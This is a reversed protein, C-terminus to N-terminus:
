YYDNILCHKKDIFENRKIFEYSKRGNWSVYNEVTILVNNNYNKKLWEAYQCILDAQYSMMDYQMSTLIRRPDHIIINNSKKDHIYFMVYGSKQVLMVRWSWRFGNEKWLVENMYTKIDYNKLYLIFRAPFLIQFVLFLVVIFRIIQSTEKYKINNINSNIYIKNFILKRKLQLPWDPEFFITTFLIMVWPFVGIEFLIRTLVHFLIVLFYAYKRTKKLSLWFPITIDFLMGAWSFLLAQEKISLIELPIFTKRALWIKLPLGELLWDPQIKAFGAYLYVIAIQLRILIIAWEPYLSNEALFNHKPEPLLLLYIGIIIIFYHHNLYYTPDQFFIWMFLLLSVLLSFKYLIGFIVFISFIMLVILIIIFINEPILPVWEFLPYRFHFSPLVFYKKWWGYLLYRLSIIFLIIGYICKIFSFSNGNVLNNSFLIYKFGKM